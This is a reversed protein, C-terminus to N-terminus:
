LHIHLPVPVPLLVLYHFLNDNCDFTANMGHEYMQNTYSSQLLTSLCFNTENSTLESMEYLTIVLALDNFRQASLVTYAHPVITLRRHLRRQWTSGAASSVQPLLLAALLSTLTPHRPSRLWLRRLWCGNVGVGADVDTPTERSKHSCTSWSNSIIFKINAPAHM